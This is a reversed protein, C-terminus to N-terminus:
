SGSIAILWGTDSEPGYNNSWRDNLISPPKEVLFKIAIILSAAFLRHATLPTVYLHLESSPLALRDMYRRVRRHRLACGGHKAITKHVSHLLRLGVTYQLLQSVM